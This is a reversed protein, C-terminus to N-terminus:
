VLFEKFAGSQRADRIVRRAEALMSTARTPSVGLEMAIDDASGDQLKMMLVQVYRDAAQPKAKMVETIVRRWTQEFHISDIVGPDDDQVVELLHQIGEANPNEKYVVVRAGLAANPNAKQHLREADTRAGYLERCVPNTASNRSDTWASRVAYTCIHQDAITHNLMVRSRLSDRYILRTFCESIHDDIQSTIASKASTHAIAAGMAKYLPSADIGYGKPAKLHEQLWRATLNLPPKSFGQGEIQRALAAGEETLAWQGFAMQQTLPGHKSKFWRDQRSLMLPLVQIKRDLGEPKRGQRPYPSNNPDIGFLTLTYPKLLWLPMPM